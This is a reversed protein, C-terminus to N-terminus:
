GEPRRGLRDRLLSPSSPSISLPATRVYGVHDDPHLTTSGPAPPAADPADDSPAAPTPRRPAAPASPAPAPRPRHEPRPLVRHPAPQHRIQGRRPLLPVGGPPHPLPQHVLVARTTASDVTRPTPARDSPRSRRQVPAQHRDRLRMAGARSASTSKPSNTATIAPSRNCSCINTIRNDCEPLATCMANPLTLGLLREQVPVHLRELGETPHRGPLDPVVVEFRRHHPHQQAPVPQLVRLEDRQARMVPEVREEALGPM